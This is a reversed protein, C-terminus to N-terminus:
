ASEYAEMRNRRYLWYYALMVGIFVAAGAVGPRFAPIAFTAALCVLALLIGVVAGAAGLPSRYPRRLDPQEQRLRLFSVLVLIYSLLAGFVAMNLLAAGVSASYQQALWCLALGAAGGGILAVHPTRRPSLAALISPLYGARSLAFLLRGYAYIISHFSAILGTLSILSLTASTARSPFVARFGAELPANSEGIGKAGPGVGSNVILTGLSLLLLTVIGWKLARPMDREVDYSEEASLPLQEIALYFWVAYPLAAFVGYWGKPLFATAGPDPAVNLANSWAFSGTLLAAAYFFILVAAALATIAMSVRFTLAAGMVNIAVFFAYFALWWIWEPTQPLLARMYGAIGAVIVAPTTVYEIADTLGNLFARDKGFAARTFNYFGGADPLAASLEAISFVLCVYMVAIIVTALFLGGFGGALLGTQWGFYNGSIVGGVGLAWLHVWGASRTLSTHTAPM